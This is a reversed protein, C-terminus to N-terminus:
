EGSIRLRAPWLAIGSVLLDTWHSICGEGFQCYFHRPGFTTLSITWDPAGSLIAECPERLETLSTVIAGLLLDEHKLDPAFLSPYAGCDHATYPEAWQEILRINQHVM